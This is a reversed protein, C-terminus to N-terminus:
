CGVSPTSLYNTFWTGGTLDTGTLGIWAYYTHGPTCGSFFDMVAGNPAWTAHHDANVTCQPLNASGDSNFQHAEGNNNDYIISQLQCSRVLPNSVFYVTTGTLTVAGGSSSICANLAIGHGVGTRGTCGTAANASGAFVAMPVALMALVAVLVLRKMNCESREPWTPRALM